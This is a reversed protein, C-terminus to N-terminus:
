EGAFADAIQDVSAQLATLGGGVLYWAASDLYVVQGKTWATTQAVLPNDLLERAATGEEGIAADRDVVFLWDPDTELLYEFSVPQGHTGLAVSADAPTVGFDAFIMGFRSGPGYASIKGGTTMVVLGRGATAATERLAAISADLRALAAEAEAERGTIAALTRVNRAASAVPAAPDATLDITPAIRSLEALKPASRSAVVILDPAAAAVAEYDPEFLSGLKPTDALADLYAPLKIEPIGAVPVGLATLTDLTALDFTVITGPAKEVQTTGQAHVVDITEARAPLAAALMLMGAVAAVFFAPLGPRQPM